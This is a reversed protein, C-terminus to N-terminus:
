GDTGTEPIRPARAPSEASRETIVADMPVDCPGQPLEPTLLASFCLCLKYTECAALFRDYYGAGHGLRAGQPSAGVCPIVALDIDPPIASEPPHAPEYIGLRGPRLEDLSAIPVAQMTQMDICKPVYVRKGAHLANELIARTDPETPTSVYVFVSRANKYVASELVSRTIAASYKRRKEPPIAAAKEKLLRRLAKKEDAATM